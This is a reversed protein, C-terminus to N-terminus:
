TVTKKRIDGLASEPDNDFFSAVCVDQAEDDVGNTLLTPCDITHIEDLCSWEKLTGVITFESPGLMTTHVTPDAQMAAFSAGLEEPWPTLQCVYKAYFVNM